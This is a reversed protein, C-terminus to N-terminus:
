ELGELVAAFELNEALCSVRNKEIEESNKEVGLEPRM